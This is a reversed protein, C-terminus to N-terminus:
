VVCLTPIVIGAIEGGTLGSSTHPCQLDGSPTITFNHNSGCPSVLNEMTCGDENEATFVQYLLFTSLMKNWTPNYYISLNHDGARAPSCYGALYINEQGRLLDGVITRLTEKLNTISTINYFNNFDALNKLIVQDQKGGIAVVYYTFASHDSKANLAEQLTVTHHEDVGDTILV